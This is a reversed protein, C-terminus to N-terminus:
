VNVANRLEVGARTRKVIASVLRQGYDTLDNPEFTESTALLMDSHRSSPIGAGRQFEVMRFLAYFSHLRGITPRKTGQFPAHVLKFDAESQVLRDLLNFLFLEQHAMEHVISTAVEPMSFESIREGFFVCGFAHPHSGSRFTVEALKM